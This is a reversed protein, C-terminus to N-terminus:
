LYKSIKRLSSLTGLLIIQDDVEFVYDAPVPFIAREAHKVMVCQLNHEVLHLEDLGKGALRESTHVEVIYQDNGMSIYDMVEPYMMTHSLRLGMEHEPHVVHDAGLKSLIQHHSHNLAKVWLKPKVMAKVHLAALLNAELDEGIAVLVIDSEHVGLERLVKEDRADAIVAQAIRDAMTSVREANIDIGTVDHGLRSLESAVTCGFLGLGIVTFHRKM